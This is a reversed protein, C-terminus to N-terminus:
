SNVIILVWGCTCDVTLTGFVIVYNNFYACAFWTYIKTIPNQNFFFYNHIQRSFSFEGSCKSFYEDLNIKNYYGWRMILKIITVTIMNETVCVDINYKITVYLFSNIWIKHINVSTKKKVTKIYYIEEKYM